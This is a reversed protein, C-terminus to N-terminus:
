SEGSGGSRRLRYDIKFTPSHQPQEQRKDYMQTTSISSHGLWKRVEGVDAGGYLAHTAATARLSHASFRPDRIGIAEGYSQVIRNISETSLARDLDGSRNNRTPRFLAGESDEGHGAQELYSEIAQLSEPALAVFRIKGGKGQVELHMVGERSHLDQVRLKVLEERRLGHYLLTSLIARDRLGLVTEVNPARLLALAERPGIAPTKGENAGQNPRSVGHVPNQPVANAESLYNYLSALASLKRRITAPSLERSALDERWAIVHARTVIRFEEPSEIGVYDMFDRIDRRYARRTHENQLNAFWEAEPPVSSLGQFEAATLRRGSSTAGAQTPSPSNPHRSLDKSM